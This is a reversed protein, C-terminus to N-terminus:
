KTQVEVIELKTSPLTHFIDLLKGQIKNEIIDHFGALLEAPSTYFNAPDNRIMDTFQPLTLNSFGMERVILLMEGEIREVERLGLSHIEPATLVTSTHFELCAQLIVNTANM